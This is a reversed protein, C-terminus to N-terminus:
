AAEVEVYAQAKCGCNIQTGPHGDAPPKDWRYVRGDRAKHEPRFHLKGSHRWKYRKIGAQQQRLGDLETSLKVTQDSAILNARSRGVGLEHALMKGLSRRPTQKLFERWVTDEVRRRMDDNLGKILGAHRELAAAIEDQVDAVSLFPFTDVGTAAKVVDAFRRRHWAEVRVTWENMQPQLTLVLRNLDGVAARLANGLDDSAADRTLRDIAGEYAPLVLDRVTEAWRRVVAMGFRRAERTLTAAPEVPRLTLPQRRNSESRIIAAM